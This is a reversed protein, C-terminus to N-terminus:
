LRQNASCTYLFCLITRLSTNEVRVLFDAVAPSSPSELVPMPVAPDSLLTLYSKLMTIEQAVANAVVHNDELIESVPLSVLKESLRVLLGLGEMKGALRVILRRAFSVIALTDSPSLNTTIKSSIQEIVTALLPSPTSGGPQYDNATTIELSSNSLEEIYGYPAKLCLQVCDDLFNVVAARENSLLTGEPSEADFARAGIPLSSLWFHVEEPDHEFLISGSFIHQVLSRIADRIATVDVSAYANLLISIYSRSGAASLDLYSGAPTCSV